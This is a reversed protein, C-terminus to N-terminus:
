VDNERHTNSSTTKSINFLYTDILAEKETLYPSIDGNINNNYM